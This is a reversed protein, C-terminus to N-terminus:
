GSRGKRRAGSCATGSQHARTLIEAVRELVARDEVALPLGHEATTRAVLEAVAAKFSTDCAREDVEVLTPEDLLRAVIVRVHRPPVVRDLEWLRVTRATRRLEAGLQERSWGARERAQRVTTGTWFCAFPSLAM